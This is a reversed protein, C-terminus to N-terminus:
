VDFVSGDAMFANRPGRQLRPPSALLVEENLDVGLGPRDPVTLNGKEVVWAERLVRDRYPEQRV